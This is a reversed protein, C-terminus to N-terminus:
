QSPCAPPRPSCSHGATGEDFGFHGFVRFAAALRQKRYTRKKEM